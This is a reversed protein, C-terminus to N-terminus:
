NVILIVVLHGVLVMILIIFDVGESGMQQTTRSHQEQQHTITPVVQQQVHIHIVLPQVLLYLVTNAQQQPIVDVLVM